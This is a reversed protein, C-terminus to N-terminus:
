LWTGLSLLTVRPKVKMGLEEGLRRSERGDGEVEAQNGGPRGFGQQEWEGARGEEWKDGLQELLWGMGEPVAAKGLVSFM